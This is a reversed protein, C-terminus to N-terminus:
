YQPGQYRAGARRSVASDVLGSWFNGWVHGPFSRFDKQNWISNLNNINLHNYNNKTHSM